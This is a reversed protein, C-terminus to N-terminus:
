HHLSETEGRIVRNELDREASLLRRIKHRAQAFPSMSAGKGLFADLDPHEAQLRPILALFVQSLEPDFQIGARARIEELAREIPWPAAYPRGHTLADFVDALAVIRAHIPIRKSSIKSPYGEGNWWEHHSRAVEEAIRLHPSASKGLLESGINTHACIFHREVEKLESSNLLIRDPLGLKGIDHLRGALVLADVADREWGLEVALLSALTGVRYGHEGSIDDRLDATVALRELMEIQCTLAQREAVKARLRAERFRLSGLDHDESAFTRSPLIGSNSTLLAAIGRERSVRVFAILADLHALSEEPQGLQDYAKILATLAGTRLSNDACRTLVQELSKLGAHADGGQIECQALSIEALIQGRAGGSARGYQLCSNAHARAKELKGLELALQVYTFERVARASASIADNPERSNALAQEIVELGEEYEGLLLRSQALNTLAPTRLDMKCNPSSALSVARQLCPIAERYLGGYNLAVGLNILVVTKSFSDSLRCAIDFAKSYLPVAAAINGSDAFIVGLFTNAKRSWIDNCTQSALSDVHELLELAAPGHANGYFYSACDFLCQMRMEAHASGRIKALARGAEIFFASDSSGKSLRYKIESQLRALLLRGDASSARKTSRLLEELQFAYTSGM